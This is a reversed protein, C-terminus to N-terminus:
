DYEGGKLLEDRKKCFYEHQCFDYGCGTMWIAFDKLEENEEKVAELEAKLKENEAEVTSLKTKLSDFKNKSIVVYEPGFVIAEKGSRVMSVFSSFMQYSKGMRRANNEIITDM